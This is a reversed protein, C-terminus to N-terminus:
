NRSAIRYVVYLLVICLATIFIAYWLRHYILRYNHDVDSTFVNDFWVRIFEFWSLIAIFILASMVLTEISVTINSERRPVDLIDQNQGIANNVISDSIDDYAGILTVGAGMNAM